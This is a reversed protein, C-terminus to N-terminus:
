LISPIVAFLIDVNMEPVKIQLKECIPLLMHYYKPMQNEDIRLNSGMNMIHEQKEYGISMFWKLLQSFGPIAKLASLAAKDSDHLFLNPNISMMM